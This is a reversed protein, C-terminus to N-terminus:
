RMSWPGHRSFTSPSGPPRTSLYRPWSAQARTSASHWGGAPLKKLGEQRGQYRRFSMLLANDWRRELWGGRQVQEFGELLKALGAKKQEFLLQRKNSLFSTADITLSHARYSVGTM